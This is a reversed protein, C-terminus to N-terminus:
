YTALERQIQARVKLLPQCYHRRSAARVAEYRNPDSTDGPLLTEMSFPQSPLGEILLRVYATFRPLGAIDRATLQGPYKALQNALIEADDSGVQFAIMSGVNGFVADAM